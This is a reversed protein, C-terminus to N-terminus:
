TEQPTILALLCHGSLLWQLICRLHPPQTTRCGRKESTLNVRYTRTGVMIQIIIDNLDFIIYRSIHNILTKRYNSTSEM